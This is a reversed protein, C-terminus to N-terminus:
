LPSCQSFNKSVNKNKFMVDQMLREFPWTFLTIKKFKNKLLPDHDHPMGAAAPTDLGHEHAQPNQCCCFRDAGLARRKHLVASLFFTATHPSILSTHENAIKAIAADATGHRVPYVPICDALIITLCRLDLGM